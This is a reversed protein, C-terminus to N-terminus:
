VKNIGSENENHEKAQKILYFNLYRDLQDEINIIIKGTLLKWDKIAFGANNWRSNEFMMYWLKILDENHKLNPKLSLVFSKYEEYSPKTFCEKNPEVKREYDNFQALSNFLKKQEEKSLYFKYKEKTDIEKNKRLAEIGTFLCALVAAFAIPTAWIKLLL